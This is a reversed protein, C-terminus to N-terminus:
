KVMTGVLRDEVAFGLRKLMLVKSSSAVGLSIRSHGRACRRGLKTRLGVMSRSADSQIRTMGNGEIEKTWSVTLSGAIFQVCRHHQTGNEGTKLDAFSAM